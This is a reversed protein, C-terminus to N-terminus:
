STVQGIHGTKVERLPSRKICNAFIIYIYYHTDM